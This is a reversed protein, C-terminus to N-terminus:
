KIVKDPYPLMGNSFLWNDSDEWGPTETLVGNSLQIESTSIKWFGRTKAYRSVLGNSPLDCWGGQVVNGLYTLPAGLQNNLIIEGAKEPYWRRLDRFRCAEFCLEYHREKELREFTYSDYPALGARARLQNMGTVTGELEDLMLLVDAFRMVILTGRQSTDTNNSTAMNSYAYFFNRYISSKLGDSYCCTNIYKKNHFLTREVEKSKDGVHNPLEVPQGEMWPHLKVVDDAALVSGWLRKDAEGYDPDELWEKVMNPNVPCYSYGNGYPYIKDDPRSSSNRLSCNETYKNYGVSSSNLSFSIGWITEKSHNGVWHLNERNIYTGFDADYAFGSSYENTYTWIERQDKELAFGSNDRVDKLYSIIESKSIGALDAKKYFGTYFMWVRALMAEAAYKTARGVYDDATTYGYKAPMTRIAAVFDNAIQEFMEDATPRPLNVPATALVLPATEYKEALNWYYAARMFYAQGILYNKFDVSSFLADDMEPISELVWNARFVGEYARKWASQSGDAKDDMFRDSAHCYTGSLSTGGFMEDSAANNRFFEMHQVDTCMQAFPKYMANVAQIADKETKPFTSTDYQAYNEVDLLDDFTDCGGALLGALAICTFIKTKM